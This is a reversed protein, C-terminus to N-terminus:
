RLMLSINNLRYTCNNLLRQKENIVSTFNAKDISNNEMLCEQYLNFYKSQQFNCNNLKSQCTTDLITNNIYVLQTINQCVECVSQVERIITNNHEIIITNNHEVIVPDSTCATLSILLGFLIWFLKTKIRM